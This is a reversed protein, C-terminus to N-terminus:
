AIRSSALRRPPVSEWRRWVRRLQHASTFGAMEAVRDIPLNSQTLIERALAVRMRQVYALPSCQAHQAFLRALNRESTHAVQALRRAPWPAAPNRSVADQVRHVVPHIHNRYLVWPSLAPDAGSRRMYVVLERAVTAAVRHGLQQGIVHLALDLGATVGATSLVRGAEVFIRNEQVRATPAVQQLEKIHAHHTTCELNELAGAYGAVVSGACVCMLTISENTLVERLWAALATVAPSALDLAPGAVGTVVILSGDAVKRPLPALSGLHLGVGSEVSRTSGVFHLAYSGPVQANAIRFAEAPGAVDLLVVGPLLAFLVDRMIRPGFDSVGTQRSGAAQPCAYINRLVINQGLVTL